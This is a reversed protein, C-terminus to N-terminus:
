KSVARRRHGPRNRRGSGGGTVWQTSEDHHRAVATLRQLMQQTDCGCVELLIREATRM